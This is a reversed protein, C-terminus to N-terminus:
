FFFIELQQPIIQYQNSKIEEQRQSVQSVIITQIHPCTQDVPVWM